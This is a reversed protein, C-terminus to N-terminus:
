PQPAFRLSEVMVVIIKSGEPKSPVGFVNVKQGLFQEVPETTLLNQVELYALARGQSDILQYDQKPGRGFIRRTRELRGSFLRPPLAANPTSILVPPLAAPEPKTVTSEVGTVTETETPPSDDPEQAEVPMPIAVYGGLTKRIVVRSWEGTVSIVEAEEGAGIFTLLDADSSPELYVTAGTGVTFDKLIDENRVYGQYSGLIRIAWWGEPPPDMEPPLTEDTLPTLESGADLTLLVPADPAPNMRMESATELIEAQLCATFTLLSFLCSKAKM